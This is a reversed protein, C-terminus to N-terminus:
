RAVSAAQSRQALRLDRPEARSAVLAVLCQERAKRDRRAECVSVLAQVEPTAALWLPAGARDFAGFLLAAIAATAAVAATAFLARQAYPVQTRM